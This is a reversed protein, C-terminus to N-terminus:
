SYCVTTPKTHATSHMSPSAGKLWHGGPTSILGSTLEQRGAEPLFRADHIRQAAAPHYLLSHEATPTCVAPTAAAARLCSKASSKGTSSYSKQPPTILPSAFSVRKWNRSSGDAPGEACTGSADGLLIQLRVVMCKLVPRRPAPPRTAPSRNHHTPEIQLQRAEYASFSPHPPHGCPPTTPLSSGHSALLPATSPSPNLRM